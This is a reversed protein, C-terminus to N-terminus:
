PLAALEHAVQHHDRCLFVVELPKDYDPHHSEAPEKGCVACPFRKMVGRRIRMWIRKRANRKKRELPPLDRHKPEPNRRRWLRTAEAHHILCYRGGRRRPRDCRSCTTGAVLLMNWHYM